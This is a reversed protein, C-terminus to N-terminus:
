ERYRKSVRYDETHIVKILFLPGCRFVVLVAVNHVSSTYEVTYESVATNVSGGYEIMGKETKMLQVTGTYEMIRCIGREKHFVEKGSTLNVAIYTSYIKYRFHLKKNCINKDMNRKKIKKNAINM